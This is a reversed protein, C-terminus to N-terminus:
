CSFSTSRRRDRCCRPGVPCSQRSARGHRHADPPHQDQQQEAPCGANIKKGENAAAASRGRRRIDARGPRHRRRRGLLLGDVKEIRDHRVCLGGPLLKKTRSVLPCREPKEAVGNDRFPATLRGSRAAREVARTISVDIQVEPEEVLETLAEACGTVEGLGVDDRVLEAMM